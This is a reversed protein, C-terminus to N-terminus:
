YYIRRVREFDIEKRMRGKYFILKRSNYDVKLQDFRDVIEKGDDFFL